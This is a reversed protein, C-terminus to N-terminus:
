HSERPAPADLVALRSRLQQGHDAAVPPLGTALEITM